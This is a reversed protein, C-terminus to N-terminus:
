KWALEGIASPTLLEIDRRAHDLTFEPARGAEIAGIFDNFMGRYGAIDRFGPFTIRRRRGRVALAVGNSEFAVSGHTGYLRSVRLGRLTSRMEWSYALVGVAGNHYKLTTVTTLDGPCHAISISSVQPGLNALLSIWHIGGEFLPSLQPDLRWGAPRQWKLANIMALRLEGIEGDNIISRLTRALPKYHYNEAVCVQRQAREAAAAVIDLEAVSMFAPKEVIVHKGANLAAVALHMHTPPPTVILVADIRSDDLAADYSNYWGAGGLRESFGCAKGGARSAYFRAVHPAVSRLTRSHMLAAQGCGIIAMNM